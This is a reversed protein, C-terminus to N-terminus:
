GRKVFKIYVVVDVILVFLICGIALPVHYVWDIAEIQGGSQAFAARAHLVVM